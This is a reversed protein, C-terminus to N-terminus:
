LYVKGERLEASGLQDVFKSEVYAALLTRDASPDYLTRVVTGVKKDASLVPANAELELKNKIYFAKLKYPTKGEGYASIREVVEQGPYCGKTRSYSDHLNAELIIHTDDIELGYEPVEQELRVIDLANKGVVAVENARILEFAEVVETRPLFLSLCPVGWRESRWLHWASRDSPILIKNQMALMDGHVGVAEGVRELAEAGVIWLLGWKDSVDSIEVQQIFKMKTLSEITKTKLDPQVLLLFADDAARLLMFLSQVMGKRDLLGSFQVQGVPLANVDNTTLNHLFKTADPGEIRLIAHYSADFLGATERVAQIEAAPDAYHIPLEVGHISATVPNLKQLEQATPLINDM